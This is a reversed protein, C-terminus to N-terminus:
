PARGMANVEDDERPAMAEDGFARAATDRASGLACGMAGIEEIAVSPQVSAVIALTRMLTEPSPVADIKLRRKSDEQLGGLM